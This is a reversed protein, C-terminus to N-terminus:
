YIIIKIDGTIQMPFNITGTGSVMTVGAYGSLELKDCFFLISTLSKGTLAANTYSNVNNVSDTIMIPVLLTTVFLKFDGTIQMPFNLTGTGANLTVGAYSSLELGDCFFLINNLTSGVFASHTYSNVNVVSGTAMFPLLGGIGGGGGHQLAYILRRLFIIYM